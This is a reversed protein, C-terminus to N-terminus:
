NTEKMMMTTDQNAAPNNFLLWVGTKLAGYVDVRCPLQELLAGEMSPVHMHWKSTM